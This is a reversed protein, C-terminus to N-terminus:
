RSAMHCSHDQDPQQQETCRIIDISAHYAHRAVSRHIHCSLAIALALNQHDAAMYPVGSTADEIPSTRYHGQRMAGAPTAHTAARRTTIARWCLLMSTTQMQQRTNITTETDPRPTPMALRAADSPTQDSRRCRRASPSRVTGKGSPPRILHCHIASMRDLRIETSHRYM